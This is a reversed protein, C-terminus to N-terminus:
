TSVEAGAKQSVTTNSDCVGKKGFTYVLCTCIVIIGGPAHGSILFDSM